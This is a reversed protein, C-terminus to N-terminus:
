APQFGRLRRGVPILWIGRATRLPQRVAQDARAPVPAACQDGRCTGPGRGASQFLLEAQQTDARCGSHLGPSGELRPRTLLADVARLRDLIGKTYDFREIGVIIKIDEPLGFRARTRASCESAPPVGALAKPPWDISIPYPRVLTEDGGLSVSQIERDIRSELFRDVCEIFNNCHFQTHFGVITSGLLGAIIDEKWPCISFTEANPWPIHWFTIITAKPLRERIFKPVLAFHYDQVLVVPDETRSEAVVADAFRRNIQRYLQWDHMRLHPRVFVIHCLPWLGENAFGYYYGDQEEETIWVRRLTYAPASEPVRIRDHEDVTERDASRSGHAIWTGGCARMVPELATVLGSAPTQVAIEDPTRNHIYPEWNSVVLVEAEPLANLLLEHLSEPTWDIQSTVPVHESERLLKRIERDLASGASPSWSESGGRRVAEVARKLASMWSRLMLLAFVSGGIILAVTVGALAALMYAMVQGSRAGIFRLDTLIVLYSRGSGAAIPFAAILIQRGDTTVNSFSEKESRAIKECPFSAPMESSQAMLAGSSNCFGVALIRKDLAVRQFLASLKPWAREDIARDLLPETANFVLRSRAEVDVRSWQEVIGGAFRALIFGVLLTVVLGFM